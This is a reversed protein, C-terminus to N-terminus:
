VKDNKLQEQCQQLALELSISHQELKSFGKSLENCDQECVNKTRTSLEIALSECEKIKELYLCQLETKEDLSEKELPHVYKLDAFMKTKLQTEFLLARLKTDQTLPMLMDKVLLKVDHTIPNPWKNKVHQFKKTQSTFLEDLSNQKTYDYSKVKDKCLKSRSEEALRLTEDSEPAFLNALDNKDYKVNYLCPKEEQAQKLYLPNAFSSKGLSTYYSSPKPTLMHM